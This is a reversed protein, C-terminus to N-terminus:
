LGISSCTQQSFISVKHTASKIDLIKKFLILTSVIYETGNFTVNELDSVNKSQIFCHSDVM